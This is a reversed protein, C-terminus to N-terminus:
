VVDVPRLLDAEGDLLPRGEAGVREGAQFGVVPEGPRLRELRLDEAAQGGPLVPDEVTGVRGTRVARQAAEAGAPAGLEVARPDSAARRKAGSRRGRRRTAGSRPWRRPLSGSM